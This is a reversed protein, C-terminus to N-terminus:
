ALHYIKAWNQELITYTLKYRLIQELPNKKLKIAHYPKILPFFDNLHFEEFTDKKPDTDKPKESLVAGGQKMKWGFDPYSDFPIRIHELSISHTLTGDTWQYLLVRNLTLMLAVLATYM